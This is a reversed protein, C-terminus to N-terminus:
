LLLNFNHYLYVCKHCVKENTVIVITKKVLLTYAESIIPIILIIEIYHPM